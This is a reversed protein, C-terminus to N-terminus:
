GRRLAQIFERKTLVLICKPLSVVYFGDRVTVEIM